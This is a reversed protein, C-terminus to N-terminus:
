FLRQKDTLKEEFYTVIKYIVDYMIFVIVINLISSIIIQKILYFISSYTFTMFLYIIYESFEFLFTAFVTVYVLSM